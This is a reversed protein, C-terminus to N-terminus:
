ASPWPNSDRQERWKSAVRVQNGGSHYHPLGFCVRMEINSKSHVIVRPVLTQIIMKKKEDSKDDFGDLVKEVYDGITKEKFETTVIRKKECEERLQKRLEELEKGAKTREENLIEIVKGLNEPNRLATDRITESFSDGFQTIKKIKGNLMSINEELLPLGLLRHKFTKEIIEQLLGSESLYQRVRDAVTKEIEDKAIYIKHKINRYYPNKGSKAPDAQFLTGDPTELVGQLLFVVKGTKIKKKTNEKLLEQVSNFLELPVVEGHAYNYRVLMKEDQQNPFQNWDDTFYDFGRYKPNKLVYALQQTSFKEGGMKVPPIRNGDKDIKEKTEYKKTLYNKQDCYQKLKINAGGFCLAQEFMDILQKQEKININYICTKTPHPDLAFISKTSSDKGNNIRRERLKKTGKEELECSYEAAFMNKINFGIRSGRDKFDIKGSDVEYVEIKNKNAIEMFRLNHIQDRSLRDLKEFVVFDVRGALMDKELKALGHRKGLSEGRGSIDEEIVEDIIYKIGTQKHISDIWRTIIHGQQELSGAQVRGQTKTSVRVVARGHMEKINKFNIVSM